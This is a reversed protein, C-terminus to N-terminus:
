LLVFGYKFFAAAGAAIAGAIGGERRRKPATPSHLEAQPPTSSPAPLWAPSGSEPHWTYTPPEGGVTRDLDAMVTSSPM